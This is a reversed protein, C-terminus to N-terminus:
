WFSTSDVTARILWRHPVGPISGWRGRPPPRSGRARQGGQGAVVDQQDVRHPVAQVQHGLLARQDVGAVPHQGQGALGPGEVLQGRGGQLHVGEVHRAGGRHQGLREVHIRSVPRRRAPSSWRIIAARWGASQSWAWSSPGASPQRCGTPRRAPIRIGESRCPADPWRPRGTRRRWGPWPTSPGSRARSPSTPRRRWRPSARTTSARGRGLRHGDGRPRLAALAAFAPLDGLDDGLYCAASCRAPWRESWRVRTSTSPRGCSSRCAGRTPGPPGPGGPSPPSPRPWGTARRRSGAALPRHRGPGQARGRCGAPARRGCGAVARRDVPRWASPEPEVTIRGDGGVARARLARRAPRRHGEPRRRRAPGATMRDLFSVGVAGLGGGGRRVAPWGPSSTPPATSRGPRAPDAVIPSLTGDFDTLVASTAPSSWCAPALAAGSRGTGPPRAGAAPSGPRVMSRRRDTSPPRRPPHTSARNALDPGVVM